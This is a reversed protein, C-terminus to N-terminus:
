DLQAQMQAAKLRAGEVTDDDDQLGVFQVDSPKSEESRLYNALQERLLARVNARARAEVGIQLDVGTSLSSELQLDIPDSPIPMIPESGPLIVGPFADGRRSTIASATALLASIVISKM